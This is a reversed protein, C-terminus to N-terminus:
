ANEEETYEILVNKYLWNMMQNDLDDLGYELTFDSSNYFMTFIDLETLAPNVIHVEGMEPSYDDLKSRLVDWTWVWVLPPYVKLKQIDGLISNLENYTDLIVEEKPKEM